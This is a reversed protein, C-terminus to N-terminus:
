IISLVCSDFPKQLLLINETLDKSSIITNNTEKNYGLFFPTKPLFDSCNEDIRITNTDMAILVNVGFLCLSLFSKLIM